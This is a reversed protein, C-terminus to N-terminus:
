QPVNYPKATVCICQYSAHCCLSVHTKMVQVEDGLLVVVSELAERQIEIKKDIAEQSITLSVNKALHNVYYATQISQSLAVTSAVASTILSV